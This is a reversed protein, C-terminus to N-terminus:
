ISEGAVCSDAKKCLGRSKNSYFGYYRVMQEVKNPIHTVLQALWDLADFTKSIKGDKSDYIVKATGDASKDTAIYTMREQSFSARIIYRALNELGEENHPWITNGCYVNFGSHRWNMMNEIIVDTIKGEAKLMKFVEYRFLEELEGTDPPPCVVFATDNYFCGDTALIHLHLHFNQFDGFSQVAVTAGAKPVAQTM